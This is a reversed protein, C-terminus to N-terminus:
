TLRRHEVILGHSVIWAIASVTERGFDDRAGYPEIVPEGQAELIDFIEQGFTTYRHGLLRNALPPSGEAGLEGATDFFALSRSAVAPEEV